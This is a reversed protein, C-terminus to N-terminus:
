SASGQRKKTRRPRRARAARVAASQAARIWKGSDNIHAYTRIARIVAGASAQVSNAQEILPELALRLNRRRLEFLGLAHAHRYIASAYPVDHDQAIHEPAYWRLFEQEIAERDPHDCITCKREHRGLSNPTDPKEGRGEFYDRWASSTAISRDRM